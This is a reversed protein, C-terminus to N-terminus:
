LYCCAKMKKKASGLTWIPSRVDTELSGIDGVQQHSDRLERSRATRSPSRGWGAGGRARASVARLLRQRKPTQGFSSASTAPQTKPQTQLGTSERWTSHLTTGMTSYGPGPSHCWSLQPAKGASDPHKERSRVTASLSSVM